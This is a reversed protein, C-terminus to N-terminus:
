KVRAVPFGQGSLATTPRFLVQENAFRLVQSNVYNVLEHTKVYGDNDIDAAGRLGEAVAWTFSGHNRYGKLAEQVSNSTSLITSGVARSLIKLATDENMGRARM